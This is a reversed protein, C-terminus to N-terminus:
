IGDTDGIEKEEKLVEHVAYVLNRYRRKYTEESICLNDIIQWKKMDKLNYLHEFIYRSDEGVLELARDVIDCAKASKKYSPNENIAIVTTGVIDSIGGKAHPMGDLKMGSIGILDNSISEINKCHYKYKLLYKKATKYEDKPLRM